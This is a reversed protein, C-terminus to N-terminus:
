SLAEDQGGIFEKEAVANPLSGQRRAPRRRFFCYVIIGLGVTGLGALSAMPKSRISFYIIWLNGLVFLFPTV